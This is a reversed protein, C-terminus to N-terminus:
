WLHNSWRPCQYLWSEPSSHLRRVHGYEVRSVQRARCRSRDKQVRCPVLVREKSRRSSGKKFDSLYISSKVKFDPNELDPDRGFMGITMLGSLVLHPCHHVIHKCVNLCQEPAVGSKAEERSTNVQVFVRLPESRLASAAKDLADAKKISDITEVVYLNPIAAVTKCKNTQLHGIFHWQIDRPLQAQTKLDISHFIERERRAPRSKGVQKSKEVLEQVYNEGFHRQGAEYAYMVDQAPKYKSVAVLRAKQSSLFPTMPTPM